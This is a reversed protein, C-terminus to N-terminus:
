GFTLRKVGSTSLANLVEMIREHQTDPAPRIIVPDSDGFKDIAGRFWSRLSALKKDTGAGFPQNNLLVQGDSQIEVFIPEECIQPHMVGSPSNQGPLNMSLEREVVQVGASAMFFLMLVFVVDVMPAIQFGVDGDESQISAM